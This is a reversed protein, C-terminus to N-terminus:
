FVTWEITDVFPCSLPLVVYGDHLCDFNFSHFNILFVVSSGHDRYTAFRIKLFMTELLPAYNLINAIPNIIKRRDNLEDRKEVFTQGIRFERIESLAAPFLPPASAAALPRNVLRLHHLDERSFFVDNTIIRLLEQPLQDM